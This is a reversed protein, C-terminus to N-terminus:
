LQSRPSSARSGAVVPGDPSTGVVGAVYDQMAHEGALVSEATVTAGAPPAAASRQAFEAAGQVDPEAHVSLPLEPARAPSPAPM